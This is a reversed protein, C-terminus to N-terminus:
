IKVFTHFFNTLLQINHICFGVVILIMGKLSFCECWERASLYQDHDEDCQALYPELCHEAEDHELYYLEKISLKRDHDADFHAFMFAVSPECDGNSGGPSLRLLRLHDISASTSSSLISKRKNRLGFPITNTFNVNPLATRWAKLNDAESKRKEKGVGSEADHKAEENMVVLFWDVLRLGMAQLQEATCEKSLQQYYFHKHLEAAPQLQAIMNHHKRNTTGNLLKKNFGGGGLHYHERKLNASSNANSNQLLMVQEYVRM